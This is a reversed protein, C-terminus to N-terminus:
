ENESVDNPLSKQSHSIRSRPFHVLPPFPILLPFPNDTQPRLPPPQHHYRVQKFPPSPPDYFQPPPPYLFESLLFLLPLDEALDWDLQIKAAPTKNVGLLATASSFFATGSFADLRFRNRPATDVAPGGSPAEMLSMRLINPNKSGRRVHRCKFSIQLIFNM